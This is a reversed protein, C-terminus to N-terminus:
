KWQQEKWRRATIRDTSVAPLVDPIKSKSEQEVLLVALGAIIDAQQGAKVDAIM